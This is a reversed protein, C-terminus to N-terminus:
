FGSSGGPLEGLTKAVLSVDLIDGLGVDDGGDLEIVGSVVQGSTVLASTDDEELTIFGYAIEGLGTRIGAMVSEERLFLGAFVLEMGLKLRVFGFEIVEFGEFDFFLDVLDLPAPSLIGRMIEKGCIVFGDFEPLDKFLGEFDHGLVIEGMFQGRGIWGASTTSWSWCISELIGRFEFEGSHGVMISDYSSHRSSCICVCVSIVDVADGDVTVALGEDATIIEADVQPIEVNLVLTEVNNVDFGGVHFFEGFDDGRSFKM